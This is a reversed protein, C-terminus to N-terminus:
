GVFGQRHSKNHCSRCIRQLNELSNDQWDHNKHHVDTKPNGCYFCNVKPCIKRAHYHATMWQPNKKVPKMDFAIALMDPKNEKIIKGLMTLFGYIANTPQGKSSSLPRVAYYARYCFSNGDILFLRTKSM